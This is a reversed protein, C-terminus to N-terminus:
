YTAGSKAVTKLRDQSSKTWSAYFSKTHTVEKEIKEKAGAKLLLDICSRHGGRIARELATNGFSDTANIDIDEQLLLRSVITDYGRFATLMLSTLGKKTALNVSAKKTLLLEIISDNSCGGFIAQTLATAGSENTANPDIEEQYLLTYVRYLDGNGAAWVLEREFKLADAKRLLSLRYNHMAHTYPKLYSCDEKLAILPLDDKGLTQEATEQQVHSCESFRDIRALLTDIKEGMFDRFDERSMEMDELLDDSTMVVGPFGAPLPDHTTHPRMLTLWDHETQAYEANISFPMSIPLFGLNLYFRISEHNLLRTQLVLASGEPFCEYLHKILENGIEAYADTMDLSLLGLYIIGSPLVYDDRKTCIPDSHSTNIFQDLNYAVVLGISISRKNREKFRLEWLQKGSHANVLHTDNFLKQLSRHCLDPSLNLAELCTNHSVYSQYNIKNQAQLSADVSSWEGRIYMLLNENSLNRTKISLVNFTDSNWTEKLDNMRMLMCEM